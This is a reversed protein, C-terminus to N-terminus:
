PLLVVDTYEVKGTKHEDDPLPVSFVIQKLPYHKKADNAGGWHELKRKLPIRIIEWGGTGIVKGKYQHTQGTADILRFTLQQRLPSRAEIQVASAGEPIEVPTAALIYPTGQARANTFDYRMIGISKGDDTKGLVFDGEGTNKIFEWETDCQFLKLNVAGEVPEAAAAKQKASLQPQVVAEGGVVTCLGPQVGEPLTVYQPAGTLKLELQDVTPLVQSVKGNVSVVDLGPGQRLGVAVNHERAEDPTGGAPPATWAVLKRRGADNQFLLVYDRGYDSELRRVLRYGALQAFMTKCAQYVPRSRDEDVLGFKKGEWEYWSTIRIDYLQDIMFQRVYNWAQFEWARGKEGGSWGENPRSGGQTEKVGLGRETNLRPLDPKGYKELLDRTIEHGVSFEEPTKVGYPHVSWGRIGTELIGKEFCFKTWEYSPDWYNSVSGAMVFCDPDAKLMAPVVEKVLATYEAAFPESNHKGDKRWFTRVNPENWVEWLVNQDQYQSALAAAFGAFGKRGAATQIGGRGDDEYLKNGSFLCGIVTLDLRKAAAMQADYDSFDYVGKEKEVSSWYFGRRVARFGLEHVQQLTAVTFNHTKLQVACSQPLGTEPLPDAAFAAFSVVSSLMMPIWKMNLSLQM